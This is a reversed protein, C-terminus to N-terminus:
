CMSVRVTPRLAEEAPMPPNARISMGRIVVLNARPYPIYGLGGINSPSVKDQLPYSCTSLSSSSSSQLHIRPDHTRTDYTRTDHTRTDHTRTDHTRTDHTRTGHTKINHTRTGNPYVCPVLFKRDPQYSKSVLNNM